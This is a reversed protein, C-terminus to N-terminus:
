NSELKEKEIQEVFEDLKNYIKEIDCDVGLVDVIYAKVKEGTICKRVDGSNKLWYEILMKEDLSNLVSQINVKGKSYYDTSRYINLLLFEVFCQKNNENIKPNFCINFLYENMLKHIQAGDKNGEEDYFGCGIGLYIDKTSLQYIIFLKLNSKIQILDNDTAEKKNINNITGCINAININEIEDFINKKCNIYMKRFFAFIEQSIRRMERIVLKNQNGDTMGTKNEDKLLADTLNYFGGSRNLCCSLRFQLLDYLDLVSDGKLLNLVAFNKKTGDGFILQTIKNNEIAELNPVGNESKITTVINLMKAIIISMADRLSGRNSEMKILSYNKINKVAFSLAKKFNDQNKTTLFSRNTMERWFRLHDEEKELNKFVDEIKEKNELVNNVFNIYSQYEELKLPKKMDVILNLYKELNRNKGLDFLGAGNFCAYTRKALLNDKELVIKDKFNLRTKVDFIEKLLFNLLSNKEVENKKMFERYRESNEITYESGNLVTVVSFFGQKGKTETEYIVRFVDPYYIYIILLNILDQVNIDTNYFDLKEIDLVLMTNFLRKVKRADGLFTSYYQQNKGNFIEKLGYILDKYIGKDDILFPKSFYNIISNRDIFITYKINIFKELFANIKEYELKNKEFLMMNQTDYCLVYSIYPLQLTAKIIFLIDKIDSFDVRDLDDIIVIIKKNKERLESTIKKFFSALFDPFILEKLDIGKYVFKLPSIKLIKQYLFITVSREPNFGDTGIKNVLGVLFQELLDNKNKYVLPSFQYVIIRNNLKKWYIKCLNIFSTKGTGWPADLGFTLSSSAGNNFVMDSFKKAKEKFNFVDKKFYEIPKDDLFVSKETNKSYKNKFLTTNSLICVLVISIILNLNTITINQLAEILFMNIKEQFLFFLIIGLFTRIILDVRTNDVFLKIQRYFCKKNIKLLFYTYLLFLLGYGKCFSLAEGHNISYVGAEIIKYELTVLESFICGQCVYYVVVLWNILSENIYKNKM